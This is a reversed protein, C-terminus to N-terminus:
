ASSPMRSIDTHSSNLRTSKRDTRPLAEFHDDIPLELCEGAAIELVGLGLEIREESVRRVARERASGGVLIASLSSAGAVWWSTVGLGAM